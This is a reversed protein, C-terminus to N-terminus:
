TVAKLMELFGTTVKEAKEESVQDLQHALERVRNALGCEQEQAMRLDVVLLHRGHMLDGSYRRLSHALGQLMSPQAYTSLVATSIFEKLVLWHMERTWARPKPLDPTRSACSDLWADVSRRLSEDREASVRASVRDVSTHPLQEADNGALRALTVRVEPLSYFLRLLNDVARSQIQTGSEWRSISEAAVGIQEALDKQTLKLDVRKERIEEPQLLRLKNRLAHSVQEDADNGLVLEGCSECKPIRFEPITLDYVRGDHKVTTKYHIITPNVAKECCAPCRWPFAKMKADSTM